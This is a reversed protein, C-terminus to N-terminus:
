SDLLLENFHNEMEVIEKQAKEVRKLAELSQRRVDELSLIRTEQFRDIDTQSAVVRSDFEKTSFDNIIEIDSTIQNDSLLRRKRSEFSRRNNHTGSPNSKDSLNQFTLINSPDQSFSSVTDNTNTIKKM